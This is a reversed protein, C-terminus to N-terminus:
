GNPHAKMFSRAKENAKEETQFTGLIRLGGKKPEYDLRWDGGNTKGYDVVSQM